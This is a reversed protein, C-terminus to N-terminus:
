RQRRIRRGNNRKPFSHHRKQSPHSQDLTRPQSNNEERDGVYYLLFDGYEHKVTQLASNETATSRKALSSIFLPLRGTKALVEESSTVLDHSHDIQGQPYQKRTAVIINDGEALLAAQSHIKCQRARRRRRNSTSPISQAAKPDAVQM